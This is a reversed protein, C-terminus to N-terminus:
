YEDDIVITKAIKDHLGQHNKAFLIMFYGILFFSSCLKGVIERMVMTGISPIEREELTVIRLKMMKKGLTRGQLVTAPFVVFYVFSFMMSLISVVAIKGALVQFIEFIRYGAYEATSFVAELSPALFLSNLVYAPLSAILSDIIVALLRKGLRKSGIKDSMMQNQHNVRQIINRSEFTSDFQGYNQQMPQNYTGQPYQQNYPPQGYPQQQGYSQQGYPQQGYQQGYPPQQYPQQPPQNNSDHSYGTEEYTGGTNPQEYYGDQPNMPQGQPYGQQQPYGHPNGQQPDYGYPQTNPYGASPNQYYNEQNQNENRDNEHQTANPIHSVDPNMYGSKEEDNNSGHQLQNLRDNLNM